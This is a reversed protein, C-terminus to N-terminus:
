IDHKNEAWWQRYEKTFARFLLKKQLKHEENKTHSVYWYHDVLRKRFSFFDDDVEAFSVNSGEATTSASHVMLTSGFSGTGLRSFDDTDKVQIKEKGVVYHLTSGAGDGEGLTEATEHRSVRWHESTDWFTDLGDVHLRWNHLACVFCFLDDIVESDQLMIPLMFIRFRGKVVGNVREIGKRVSEVQRNWQFM